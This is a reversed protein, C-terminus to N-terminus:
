RKPTNGKITIVRLTDAKTRAKLWDQLKLRDDTKLDDTCDILALVYRCCSSSDACVEVVNSLCIKSVVPFLTKAEPGIERGADEFRIYEALETKMSAIQASQEMIKQNSVEKSLTITNIKKMLSDTQTGQIVNLKYEDLKYDVLRRGARKIQEESIINGMAVVNLANNKRDIEHSMIQTGEFVLEARVFKLANNDCVSRKIIQITMYAAPLMTVVVATVIYRKVRKMREKDIFTKLRFNLMRVGVFTALCIFVTNIFFLYFAGFFYSLNGVAFGYGATCLPPMLATAIAVGPIVNGKDKTSLALIGAAGGCLAILVDYLTPSTRALLESQAETLPTITFYVTATLVSIVTSVVYNKFSRKLLEFDNIGISLGMGIIPGMLPSILMAGIIVATSNTNLGLSAIFIAFILVWLNAGRFVVGSSIQRITEEEDEKNPLANFYSKVTQWLSKQKKDEEM